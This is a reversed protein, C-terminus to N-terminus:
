LIYNNLFRSLCFSVEVYCIGRSSRPSPKQLGPKSRLCVFVAAANVVVLCLCLFIFFSCICLGSWKGWKGM